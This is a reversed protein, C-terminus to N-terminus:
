KLLPPFREYYSTSKKEKNEKRYQRPSCGYYKKFTNCFYEESNFGVKEAIQSISRDTKLLYRVANKMRWLNRYTIPTVGMEKQFKHALHTKSMKCFAAIDELSYNEASYYCLLHAIFDCDTNKSSSSPNFVVNATKRYLYMLLEFFQLRFNEEHLEDSLVSEDVMQILRQEIESSHTTRYPKGIEIPLLPPQNSDITNFVVFYDEAIGNGDYYTKRYGPPTIIFGGEGLLIEKGGGMIITKSEKSVYTFTYETTTKENGMSGLSFTHGAFDMKISDLNYNLIKGEM